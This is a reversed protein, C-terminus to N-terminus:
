ERREESKEPESADPRYPDLIRRLQKMRETDYISIEYFPPQIGARILQCVAGKYDGEALDCRTVVGIVPVRFAKAFGPPYVERKGKADATMVVCSADQAAAILHHHMWPSELYAGPTDLTNKRYVMNQVRRIDSSDELWAALTTKGSKGPGIIMIRKKRM